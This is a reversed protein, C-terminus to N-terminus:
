AVFNYFFHSESDRFTIRGETPIHQKASHTCM